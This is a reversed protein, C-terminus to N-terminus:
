FFVFPAHCPCLKLCGKGFIHRVLIQPCSSMELSVGDELFLIYAAGLRAIYLSGPVIHELHEVIKKGDTGRIDCGAAVLRPKWRQKGVEQDVHKLSTSLMGRVLRADPIEAVVEDWKRVADWYWAKDVEALNRFEEKISDHAGKSQVEPSVQYYLNTHFDVGKRM